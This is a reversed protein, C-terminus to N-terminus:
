STSSLKIRIVNSNERIRYGMVIQEALNAYMSMPPCNQMKDRYASSLREFPHRVIIMSTGNASAMMLEEVSPRPYRERAMAQPQQSNTAELKSFGAMLNFNYMWSTSAAKFINCRHVYIFDGIHVADLTM